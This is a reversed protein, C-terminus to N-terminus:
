TAIAEVRVMQSYAEDYASIGSRVSTSFYLINEVFLVVKLVSSVIFVISSRGYICWRQRAFMACCAYVGLALLVNLCVLGVRILCGYGVDHGLDLDEAWM